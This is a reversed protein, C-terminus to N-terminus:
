GNELAKRIAEAVPEALVNSGYPTFHVNAVHQIEDIRAQAFSYLDNIPIGHAEMIYRAAANYVPPDEPHRVPDSAGAPVPTTSAWILTVGTKELRDVIAQLNKEYQDVPAVQVGDIWKMDHLGWNFHIVDWPTDGLWADLHLLGYATEDCNDPARYVNAKGSLLARVRETYGISISDGLLLVRPLAPDVEAPAALPEASPGVPPNQRASQIAQPSPKELSMFHYSKELLFSQYPFVQTRVVKICRGQKRLPRVAVRFLVACEQLRRPEM